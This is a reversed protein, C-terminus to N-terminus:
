ASGIGLDWYRVFQAESLLPGISGAVLPTATSQILERLLAADFFTAELGVEWMGQLTVQEGWVLQLEGLDVRVLSPIRTPDGALAQTERWTLDGRLDREDRFLILGLANDLSLQGHLSELWEEANMATTWRLCIRGEDFEVKAHETRSFEYFRAERGSVVYKEHFLKRPKRDVTWAPDYGSVLEDSPRRWAPERSNRKIAQKRLMSLLPGYTFRPFNLSLKVLAPTQMFPLFRDPFGPMTCGICIGGVNPCGGKGAVWGRTAVNCKVVPGKCGLKILCKHSGYENAFDGVEYFAARNCGEHVTRQFLWAPRLAEDLQIPPAVGAVMMLLYLLTETLNDPQTPCGPICVIPTGTRSRWQWGLYDPLGMAGTPNNRMAPIGGYTACTGLAVVAEARPALRSIWENTTIPQGSESDFSLGSWHGEGNIQENPISGEMLLIFPDLKGEEADYWAQMFDTGSEYSLLPHHLVLRPMGPIVGAILNELSPNTAATIAVSEGDCSLGSSMWLAHVVPAGPDPPTAAEFGPM